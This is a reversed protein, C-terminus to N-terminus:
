CVSSTLIRCNLDNYLNEIKLGLHELGDNGIIENLAERLSSINLKIKGNQIDEFLIDLIDNRSQECIKNASDEVMKEYEKIM